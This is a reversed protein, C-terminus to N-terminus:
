SEVWGKYLRSAQYQEIVPSSCMKKDEPHEFISCYAVPLIGVVGKWGSLCLVDKLAIQDWFEEKRERSKIQELGEKAWLKVLQEGSETANLYVTASNIKSPHNTPCQSYIRVAIDGTFSPIWMPKQVFVADADVWLLSRKHEQLKQLLFLPKFACNLEWSGATEIGEIDYELGFKKCSDILNKAYWEYPTNRTYFSVVLPFASMSVGAQVIRTHLM